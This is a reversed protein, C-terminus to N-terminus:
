HRGSKVSSNPVLEAGKQVGDIARQAAGNFPPKAHKNQLM